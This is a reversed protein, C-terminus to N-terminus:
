GLNIGALNRLAPLLPPLDDRVTNWLVQVDVGFYEHAVKNRMGRVDAWPIEPAAVAVDEPIAKSAEGIIVIAYSVADVTRPDAVFQEFTLGRVYAMAREAASAIDAVRLRWERPPV